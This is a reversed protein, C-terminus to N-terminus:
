SQRKRGLQKMLGAARGGGKVALKAAYTAGKSAIAAGMEVGMRATRYSVPLHINTVVGKVIRGLMKPLAAIFYSCMILSMLIVALDQIKVGGDAAASNVFSAVLDSFIGSFLTFALLTALLEAGAVLVSRLYNQAIPRTWELGSFAFYFYGTYVLMYAKTLQLVLCCGIVAAAVLMVAGIVVSMLGPIFSPVLAGIDGGSWALDWAMGTMSPFKIHKLLVGFATVGSGMVQGPTIAGGGMDGMMQFSEIVASMVSPGYRLLFLWSGTTIIWYVAKNFFGGLEQEDFFVRGMNWVLSIVALYGFLRLSAGRIHEAWGTAANRITVIVGDLINAAGGGQGAEAGLCEGALLLVAAGAVVAAAAASGSKRRADDATRM